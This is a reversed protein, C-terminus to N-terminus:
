MHWYKTDPWCTVLKILSATLSVTLYVWLWSLLRRIHEAACDPPCQDVDSVVNWLHENSADDGVSFKSLAKCKVKRAFHGLNLPKCLTTAMVQANTYNRYWVGRWVTREPNLIWGSTILRGGAAGVYRMPCESTTGILTEVVSWTVRMHSILFQSFFNTSFGSFFLSSL